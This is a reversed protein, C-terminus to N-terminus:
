TLHQQSVIFVFNMETSSFDLSLASSQRKLTLLNPHFHCVQRALSGLLNLISSSSQGKVRIQDVELDRRRACCHEIPATDTQFPCGVILLIHFPCATLGFWWDPCNGALRERPTSSTRCGDRLRSFTTVTQIQLIYYVQRLM